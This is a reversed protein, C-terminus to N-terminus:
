NVLGLGILIRLAGALARRIDEIEGRPPPQRPPEVGCGEAVVELAPLAELREGAVGESLLGELAM